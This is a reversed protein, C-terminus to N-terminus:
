APSGFPWAILSFLLKPITLFLTAEIILRISRQRIERITMAMSMLCFIAATPLLLLWKWEGASATFVCNWIIVDPIINMLIILLLFM